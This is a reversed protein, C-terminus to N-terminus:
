GRARAASASGRPPPSGPIKDRAAFHAPPPHSERPLPPTSPPAPRAATSYLTVLISHRRTLTEGRHRESSLQRARALSSIYNVWSKLVLDNKDSTRIMADTCCCCFRKGRLARLYKDGVKATCATVRFFLQRLRSFHTNTAVHQIPCHLLLGSVRKDLLNSRLSADSNSMFSVKGIWIGYGEQKVQTLRSKTNNINEYVIMRVTNEFSEIWCQCGIFTTTDM